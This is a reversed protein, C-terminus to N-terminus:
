FPACWAAPYDTVRYYPPYGIDQIYVKEPADSFQYITPLQHSAVCASINALTPAGCRPKIYQELVKEDRQACSLAKQIPAPEHHDSVAATSVPLTTTPSTMTTSSCGGLVCVLFLSLNKRM